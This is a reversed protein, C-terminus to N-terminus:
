LVTRMAIAMLTASLRSRVQAPAGSPIAGYTVNVM